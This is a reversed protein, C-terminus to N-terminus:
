FVLPGCLVDVFDPSQSKEENLVPAVVANDSLRIGGRRVLKKHFDLHVSNGVVEVQRHSVGEIIKSGGKVEQRTSQRAEFALTIVADIERNTIGLCLEFFGFCLSFYPLQGRVSPLEDFPALWVFSPVVVEVEEMAQVNPVFVLGQDWGTWVYANGSRYFVLTQIGGLYKRWREPIRRVLSYGHRGNARANVCLNLHGQNYREIFRPDKFSFWNVKDEQLKELSDCPNHLTRSLLEVRLAIPPLTVEPTELAQM